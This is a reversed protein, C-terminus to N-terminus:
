SANTFTMKNYCTVANNTHLVLNPKGDQEYYIMHEGLCHDGTRVGLHPNLNIM